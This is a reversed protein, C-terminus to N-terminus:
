EPSKPGSYRDSIHVYEIVDCYRNFASLTKTDFFMASVESIENMVNFSSPLEFKDGPKREPCFTSQLNPVM